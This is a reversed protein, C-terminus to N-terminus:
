VKAKIYKKRMEAWSKGNAVSAEAWDPTMDEFRYPARCPGAKIYGAANFRMKEAQVNFEAFHDVDDGPKNPPMFHTVKAIDDAIEAMRKTDGAKFAEYLAVSPEPGMGASTSWFGNLKDGVRKWAAYFGGENAPQYAIRDGTRDIIEELADVIAPSTIKCTVVTPARDAVGFWFEKPFMSKFFRSNSYVMIAMEPCAQSLDEFWRISNELTPTQWLPLGVFAGEAGIEQFARIQRITEKTGLATAGAMVPVRHRATQVVTDVFARKEDWLLAACEGTTGCLAIGGIGDRILNETMRAAEDLDVSNTNSWHEGGEVCPTPAMIYVGSVDQRTLM